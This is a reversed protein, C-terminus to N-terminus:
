FCKNQILVMEMVNYMFKEMMYQYIFAPMEEWEIHHPRDGGTGYSRPGFSDDKSRNRRTRNTKNRNWDPRLGRQVHEDSANIGNDTATAIIKGSYIIATMGELDEYSNM